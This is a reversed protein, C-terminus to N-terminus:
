DKSSALVAASVLGIAVAARLQLSHPRLGNARTVIHECNNAFIHYPEGLMGRAAAVIEARPLGSYSLFRVQRGGSFEKMSEEVVIGKVKSGSIVM